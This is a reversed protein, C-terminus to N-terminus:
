VITVKTMTYTDEEHAGNIEDGKTVKYSILAGYPFSRQYNVIQSTGWSMLNHIDAPPAYPGGAPNLVPFTPKPIYGGQIFAGLVGKIGAVMNDIFDGSVELVTGNVNPIEYKAKTTDFTFQKKVDPPIIDMSKIMVDDSLTAFYDQDTHTFAEFVNETIAKPTFLSLLAKQEGKDPFPDLTRILKFIAKEVNMQRASEVVMIENYIKVLKKTSLIPHKTADFIDLLVTTVNKLDVNPQRTIHELIAILDTHVDSAKDYKYTVNKLVYTEISDVMNKTVSIGSFENKIPSGLRFNWIRTAVTNMISKMARERAKFAYVSSNASHFSRTQASVDDEYARKMKAIFEPPINQKDAPQTLKQMSEAMGRKFDSITAITKSTWLQGPYVIVASKQSNNGEVVVAELKGSGDLKWGVLPSAKEKKEYQRRPKDKRQKPGVSHEYMSEPDVIVLNANIPTNEYASVAWEQSLIPMVPILRIQKYSDKLPKLFTELMNRREAYTAEPMTFVDTIEFVAAEWASEFCARADQFGVKRQTKMHRGDANVGINAFESDKHYEAPYSVEQEEMSIVLDELYGEQPIYIIGELGMTSPIGRKFREPVHLYRGDVDFFDYGDWFVPLADARKYSALSGVFIRLIVGENDIASPDLRAVDQRSSPLIFGNTNDVLRNEVKVWDYLNEDIKVAEFVQQNSGLAYEGVHDKAQISPKAGDKYRETQNSVLKLTGSPRPGQWVQDDPGILTIDGANSAFMNNSVPVQRTNKLTRVM